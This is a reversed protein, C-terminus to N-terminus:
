EPKKFPTLMAGFGFDARVTEVKEQRKTTPAKVTETKVSTKVKKRAEDRAKIDALYIDLEEKTRPLTGNHVKALYMEFIEYEKEKSLRSDKGWTERFYDWSPYDAFDILQRYSAMETGKKVRVPLLPPGSDSRNERWVMIENNPALDANISRAKSSLPEIIPRQDGAIEEFQGLERTAADLDGRADRYNQREIVTLGARGAGGVRPRQTLLSEGEEVERYITRNPDDPDVTAVLRPQRETPEKAPPLGAAIAISEPTFSIPPNEPSVERGDATMLGAQGPTGRALNVEDNVVGFTFSGDPLRVFNRFDRGPKAGFIKAFDKDKNVLELIAAERQDIDAQIPAIEARRGQFAETSKVDAQSVAGLVSQRQEYLKSLASLQGTAAGGKERLVRRTTEEQGLEFRKATRTEGAQARVGAEGARTAADERLRNEFERQSRREEDLVEQRQRNFRAQGAQSAAGFGRTFGQGFSAINRSDVM